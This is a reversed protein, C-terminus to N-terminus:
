GTSESRLIVSNEGNGETNEAYCSYAGYDQEQIDTVTLKMLVYNSGFYSEKPFRFCM